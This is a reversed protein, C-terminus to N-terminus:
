AFLRVFGRKFHLLELGLYFVKITHAQFPQLQVHVFGSCLHKFSTVIYVGKDFAKFLGCIGCCRLIQQFTCILRLNLRFLVKCGGIVAKSRALFCDICCCRRKAIITVTKGCPTFHQSIQTEIRM